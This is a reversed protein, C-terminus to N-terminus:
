RIAYFKADLSWLAEQLRGPESGPLRLERAMNHLYTLAEPQGLLNAPIDPLDVMQVPRDSLLAVVMATGQPPSAVFEFGAYADIPNPIQVPKGPKIRNSNQRDGAATMLSMPNPYIQTLKGSADVDVLLLYGDKRASVRFSVRSGVPIEAGPLIEVSLEAANAGKPLKGLTPLPENPAVNLAAPLGSPPSFFPAQAAGGPTTAAPPALPATATGPSLTPADIIKVGRSGEAQQAPAPTSAALLIAPVAGLLLLRTLRSM